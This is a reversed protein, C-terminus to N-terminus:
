TAVWGHRLAGLLRQGPRRPPRDKRALPTAPMPEAHSATVQTLKIVADMMERSAFTQGRAATIGDASAVTFTWRGDELCHREFNTDCACLRQMDAIASVARSEEDYPDSTLLIVSTKSRLRVSFGRDAQRIIEFYSTTPM